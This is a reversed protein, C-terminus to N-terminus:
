MDAQPRPARHKQRPAVRQWDEETLTDKLYYYPARFSGNQAFVHPARAFRVIGSLDKNKAIAVLQEDNLGQGGPFDSPVQNQPRVSLPNPPPPMHQKELIEKVKREVREELWPTDRGSFRSRHFAPVTPLTRCKSRQINPSLHELADQGRDDIGGSHTGEGEGSSHTLVRGKGKSQTSPGPTPTVSSEVEEAFIQHDATNGCSPEAHGQSTMRRRKPSSSAALNENKRRKKSRTGSAPTQTLSIESLPSSDRLTGIDHRRSSKAHGSRAKRSRKKPPSPTTSPEDRSHKQPRDRSGPTTHVSLEGSSEPSQREINVKYSSNRDPKEIVSVRGLIGLNSDCGSPRAHSSSISTQPSKNSESGTSVNSPVIEQTRRKIKNQKSPRDLPSATIEGTASHSVSRKRKKRHGSIDQSAGSTRHKHKSKKMEKSENCHDTSALLALQSQRSSHSRSSSSALSEKHNVTTGTGSSDHKTQPTSNPNKGETVAFKSVSLNRPDHRLKDSVSSGAELPRRYFEDPPIM